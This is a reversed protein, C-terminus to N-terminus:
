LVLTLRFDNVNTRTAGTVVLSDTASFFGYADHRQLFEAPNLGLSLAMDPLAPKWVAGANDESGDFGDTDCALSWVRDTKGLALGLALLYETNRGGRGHVESLAVTTEGGSLLAFPQTAHLIHHQLLRAHHQALVRSDGTQEGLNFVQIGQRILFNEAAALSRQANGIVHHQVHAFVANGPKPTDEIDGKIGRQLHAMVTHPARIGYRQLIGAAEIFTSPDPYCPGSAITAPVDGVVDSILLVYIPARSCAAIRGGSFVTLHKRVTNIDQIPAGSALLAKTVARLDESRIGEAPLALLSSGGGSLLVLLLDDEGLQRIASLMRSTALEGQSDPVPHGAELVEIRPTQLGHLYRTVVLGSLPAHTPWAEDVAKAMAAAAKGGGVVLTRSKPPSPLTGPIMLAPNAAELATKFANLLLAEVSM